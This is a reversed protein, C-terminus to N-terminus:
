AMLVAVLVPEWGRRAKACLMAADERVAHADVRVSAQHTVTYQVNVSGSGRAKDHRSAQNTQVKHSICTCGSSTAHGHKVHKDGTIRNM